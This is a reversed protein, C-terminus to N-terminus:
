QKRFTRFTPSAPLLQRSSECISIMTIRACYKFRTDSNMGEDGADDGFELKMAEAVMRMVM